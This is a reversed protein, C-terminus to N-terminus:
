CVNSIYEGSKLEIHKCGKQSKCENIWSEWNDSLLKIFVDSSGRQKYRAIYEDKLDISPYILIFDINNQILADRVDKHSSVFIRAYGDEINSKIHEIYNEPFHAKDFKSSDSDSAFGQPMYGSGEGYNVYHSKGTGPFASIVLQGIKFKASM